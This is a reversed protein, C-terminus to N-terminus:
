CRTPRALYALPFVDTWRTRDVSLVVAVHCAPGQPDPPCLDRDPVFVGGGAVARPARLQRLCRRRIERGADRTRAVLTRRTLSGGRRGAPGMDRHRRRRQRIRRSRPHAAGLAPADRSRPLEVDRGRGEASHQDPLLLPERGLRSDPRTFLRGQEDERQVSSSHSIRHGERSAPSRVRRSDLSDHPRDRPQQDDSHPRESADEQLRQKFNSHWGM